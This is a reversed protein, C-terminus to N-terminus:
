WSKSEEVLGRFCSEIVDFHCQLQGTWYNYQICEITIDWVGIFDELKWSVNDEIWKEASACSCEGASHTENESETDSDIM